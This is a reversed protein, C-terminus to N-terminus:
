HASEPQLLKPREREFAIHRLASEPPVAGHNVMVWQHKSVLQHDALERLVQYDLGCFKGHFEIWGLRKFSINEARKLEESASPSGVVGYYRLRHRVLAAVYVKRMRAKREKSLAKTKQM